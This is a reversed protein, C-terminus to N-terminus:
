PAFGEMLFVLGKRIQDGETGEPFIAGDKKIADFLVVCALECRLHRIEEQAMCIEMAALVPNVFYKNDYGAEGAERHM